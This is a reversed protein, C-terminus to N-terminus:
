SVSAEVDRALAMALSAVEGAYRRCVEAAEARRGATPRAIEVGLAAVLKGLLDCANVVGDVRSFPADTARLVPPPAALAALAEAARDWRESARPWAQRAVPQLAELRARPGEPERNLFALAEDWTGADGCVTGHMPATCVVSRVGEALALSYTSGSWKGQKRYSEKLVACVGSIHGGTFRVVGGDALVLLLYPTRGATCPEDCWEINM